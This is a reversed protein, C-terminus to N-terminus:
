EQQEFVVRGNVIVKEVQSTLDFPEGSLIVLDADKGAEISGIRTDVRLLEAPGSTIARFAKDPDMGHRVAYAAHMLLYQAGSSAGTHFAVRLGQRSLLDANNIPKGKEYLLVNPGLCVGANYKRLDDVVRYSDQGGLIIVDLGYEDRFVQLTNRIEDARGAHVLAPMRHQFLGRLLELNADRAPWNPEKAATKDDAARRHEYERRSDEYEEWKEAYEKANKLLERAEWVSALRGTDGLMSFKVAAYEKVLRDQM